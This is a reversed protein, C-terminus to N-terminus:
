HFSWFLFSITIKYLLNNEQLYKLLTNAVHLEIIKSLIPLVSIPPYNNRECQQGGKHLPTVHDVKWKDSFTNTAISLNLLRCLPHIFSPAILSLIKANLGDHGTAKSVSIKSIIDAVQQPKFEPIVFSATARLRSSIFTKRKSDDFVTLLTIM